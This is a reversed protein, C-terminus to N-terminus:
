QCVRYYYGAVAAEKVALLDAAKAMERRNEDKKRVGCRRRTSAFPDDNKMGNSRACGCPDEKTGNSRRRASACNEQRFENVKAEYADAKRRSRYHAEALRINALLRPSVQYKLKKNIYECDMKATYFM